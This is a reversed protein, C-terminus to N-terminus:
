TNQTTFGDLLCNLSDRSTRPGLHFVSQAISCRITDYDTYFIGYVADSCQYFGPYIEPSTNHILVSSLSVINYACYMKRYTIWICDYLHLAPRKIALLIDASYGNSWVFSLFTYQAINSEKFIANGCRNWLCSINHWVLGKGMVTSIGLGRWVSTHPNFNLATLSPICM